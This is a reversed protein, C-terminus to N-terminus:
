RLFAKVWYFQRASAFEQRTVEAVDVATRIARGIAKLAVKSAEGQPSTPVALCYSMVPKRGIYVVNEESM